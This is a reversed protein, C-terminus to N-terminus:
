YYFPFFSRVHLFIFDVFTKKNSLTLQANGVDRYWLVNSFELLHPLVVFLSSRLLVLDSLCRNELLAM